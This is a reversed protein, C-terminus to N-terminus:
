ELWQRFKEIIHNKWASNELDIKSSNAYKNFVGRLSKNKKSNKNINENVEFMIFEIEKNIYSKPINITIHTSQPKIVERIM